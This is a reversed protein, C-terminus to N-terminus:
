VPPISYTATAHAVPEANNESRMWVEGVALRRGLKMLKAEGLLDGPGPKRLFNINLNTTVSLAGASMNAREPDDGVGLEALLAVYIALDALAFMSPGSITGGPRLHRDGYILRLTATRPGVSEIRFEIGIRSQPFYAAIFADIDQATMRAGSEQTATEM